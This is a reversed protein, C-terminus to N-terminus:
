RLIAAIGGESVDGMAPIFAGSAIGTFGFTNTNAQKLVLPAGGESVDGMAATFGQVGTFGSLQATSYSNDARLVTGLGGESVDALAPAAAAITLTLALILNKMITNKRKDLARQNPATPQHEWNAPSGQTLLFFGPFARFFGGSSIRNSLIFNPPSSKSVGL